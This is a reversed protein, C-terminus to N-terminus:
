GFRKWFSLVTGHLTLTFFFGPTRAFSVDFLAKCLLSNTLYANATVAQLFRVTLRCGPPLPKVMLAHMDDDVIYDGDAPFIVEDYGDAEDGNQDRIQGGHGSYHFVLSDDPRAGKVLWQMAKIINNKTPIEDANRSDDRLIKIKVGRSSSSWHESLFSSIQVADKICGSLEGHVQGYGRRSVYNIGICLAKKRGT